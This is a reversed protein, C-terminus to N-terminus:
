KSIMFACPIRRSVDPWYGSYISEGGLYMATSSGGDLNGANVAGFERMVERLNDVTAGMSDPQRGKVVLLLVRGQEDQGIATRITYMLREKHPADEGNIILAPHFAMADRLGLEMLENYSFQGVVLRNDADFGMVTSCLENKTEHGRMMVGRSIVLGYADGGSGKGGGDAFGGGNIAGIAEDQYRGLLANIRLGDAKSGFYEITGVFMRSPDDVVMMFGKFTKGTVPYLSIGEYEETIRAATEADEKCPLNHFDVVQWFDKSKNTQRFCFHYACPFKVVANNTSFNITLDCYVDCCFETDSVIVWNESRYNEYTRSKNSSFFGGELYKMYNWADSREYVSMVSQDLTLDDSFYRSLTRIARFAVVEEYKEKFAAAPDSNEAGCVCTILMLAILAAILKRM